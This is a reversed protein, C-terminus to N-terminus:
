AKGKSKLELDRAEWGKKWRVTEAATLGDPPAMLSVGDERAFWGANFIEDPPETDTPTPNAREEAPKTEEIIEGDETHDVGATTANTPVVFDKMEPRPQPTIDKVVSIDSAEDEDYIGSLGFAYRAAQILAKHRLMRSPMQRWPETNRFCEVYYETIVVPLSRDKRHIRCTMAALKNSDDFHSELEFGAMLPHSNILNVWGDISVMPVIGGGKKPFAYLERLFPNLKYQHAVMMFAAFEENTANAPMATKKVADAFMKPEMNYQAAMVEILSPKKAAPQQTAVQQQPPLTNPNAPKAQTATPNM